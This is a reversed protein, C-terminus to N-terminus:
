LGALDRSAKGMSKQVKPSIFPANYLRRGLSDMSKLLELLIFCFAEELVLFLIIAKSIVTNDFQFNSVFINELIIRCIGHFDDSFLALQKQIVMPFPFGSLKFQM